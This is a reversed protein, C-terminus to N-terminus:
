ILYIVLLALLIVSMSFLMSKPIRITAGTPGCVIKHMFLVMEFPLSDPRIEPSPALEASKVHARTTIKPILEMTLIM